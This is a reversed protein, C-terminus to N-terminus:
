ISGMKRLLALNATLHNAIDEMTVREPAKLDPDRLKLWQVLAFNRPDCILKVALQEAHDMKPIRGHHCDHCLHLYNCTHAWTRPAHSRREIEHVETAPQSSCLMCYGDQEMQMRRWRDRGKAGTRECSM